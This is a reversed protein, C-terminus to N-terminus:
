LRAIRSGTRLAPKLRDRTQLGLKLKNRTRLAPKLRDRTQLGLKLMNRTRLAPKLRDRTQLGLKLKNRTRLAPKLRNGTQLGLKLKNRTRFEKGARFRARGLWFGRWRRLRSRRRRFGLGNYQGRRWIRSGNWASRWIRGAGTM